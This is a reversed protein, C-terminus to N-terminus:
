ELHVEVEVVPDIDIRGEVIDVFNGELEVVIQARGRRQQGQEVRQRPLM